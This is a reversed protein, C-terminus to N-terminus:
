DQDQFGTPIQEMKKRHILSGKRKVVKPTSRGKGTWVVCLHPRRYHPIVEVKRGLSFAWKGRRKARDFIRRREEEDARQLKHQDRSLAQRELLESDNDILCVTLALRVTNLILESPIALGHDTSPHDNLCHLCEEVSRDDLPFIRITFVPFQEVIEGVDLGVSIGNELVDSGADRSVKQFSLFAIRVSLDGSCLEHPQQPLRLLLHRIGNPPTITDGPLDLNLKTLMPIISPYVDYYPRGIENWTKDFVMHRFAIPDRCLGPGLVDYMESRTRIGHSEMLGMKKAATFQDTYDHFLM